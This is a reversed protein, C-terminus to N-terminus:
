TRVRNSLLKNRLDPWLQPVLLRFVRYTERPTRLSIAAIAAHFMANLFLKLVHTVERSRGRSNKRFHDIKM